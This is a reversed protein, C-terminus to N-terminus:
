ARGPGTVRVPFEHAEFLYRLIQVHAESLGNSKLELADGADRYEQGTFKVHSDNNLRETIRLLVDSLSAADHPKQFHDRLVEDDASCCKLMMGGAETAQLYAVLGAKTSRVDLQSWLVELAGRLRMVRQERLVHLYKSRLGRVHEKAVALQAFACACADPVRLPLRTSLRQWRPPSRLCASRCALTHSCSWPSGGASARVEERLADVKAREADVKAREADLKANAARTDERASELLRGLALVTAQLADPSQAGGASLQSAPADRAFRRL